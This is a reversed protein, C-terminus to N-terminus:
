DEALADIGPLHGKEIWELSAGGGTSIHTFKDALGSQHVACASDGGGIIRRSSLSALFRILSFTGEAFSPVEFIGVPGNWFISSATKLSKSWTAITKPGIDVGKWGEDIGEKYVNVVKKLSHNSSIPTIVVDEPLFLQIKKESCSHILQQATLVLNPEFFSSGISHGLAKLFTFAMAGGIYLADIKKLLAEIVGLKSSVKSGGIIAHFPKLPNECLSNLASIEKEILFGAAKKGPFFSPVSTISSHNRHCAAFANNVYLDGYSALTAAFSPDSKPNEEAEYFRLNELLLIEGPKLKAARAKTEAGLCDPAFLVERGLMKSLIEKCPRLSYAPNKTPGMSGLHSILVISGGKNLIWELTPISESIRMLDGFSGDELLPVNFDVRVLTKKNYYDLESCSLFKM